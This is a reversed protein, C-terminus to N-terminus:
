YVQYTIQIQLENSGDYMIPSTNDLSFYTGSFGAGSTRLAFERFNIGSMTVSSYDFTYIVQQATSIDRSTYQATQLPAILGTRTVAFAGSGSGIDCMSPPTMSGAFALAVGSRGTDLFGM